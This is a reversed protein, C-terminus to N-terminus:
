DPKTASTNNANSILLKASSSIKLSTVAIASMKSFTNANPIITSNM